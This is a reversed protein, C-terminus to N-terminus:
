EKGLEAGRDFTWTVPGRKQMLEARLRTTSSQNLDRGGTDLVVGYEEKAAQPTVKGNLIDELVLEPDRELPDGYGGGGTTLIQM